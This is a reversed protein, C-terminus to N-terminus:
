KEHKQRFTQAIGQRVNIKLRCWHIVPLASTMSFAITPGRLMPLGLVRGLRKALM